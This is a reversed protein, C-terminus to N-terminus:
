ISACSDSFEALIDKLAANLEALSSFEEGEIEALGVVIELDTGNRVLAKYSKDRILYSSPFLIGYLIAIILAILIQWHLQIKKMFSIINSWLNLFIGAFTFDPLLPSTESFVKFGESNFIQFSFPHPVCIDSKQNKSPFPIFICFDPHSYLLYAPTYFIVFTYYM